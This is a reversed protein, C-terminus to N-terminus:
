KKVNFIIEQLISKDNEQKLTFTVTYNTNAAYMIATCISTKNTIANNLLVVNKITNNAFFDKLVIVAQPMPYTDNKDSLTISINDTIYQQLISVRKTKLAEVIILPTNAQAKATIIGLIFVIFFLSRKM